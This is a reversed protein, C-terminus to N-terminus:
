GVKGYIGTITDATQITNVDELSGYMIKQSNCMIIFVKQWVINFLSIVLSM